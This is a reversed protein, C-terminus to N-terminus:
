TPTYDDRQLVLNLRTWEFVGKTFQTTNKSVRRFGLKVYCNLATTNWEFVWLDVANVSSNEFLREVMLRTLTEGHGKGRENPAILIRSLRPLTPNSWNFEGHGIMKQEQATDVLKCPTKLPDNM